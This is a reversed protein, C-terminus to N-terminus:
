LIYLLWLLYTNLMYFQFHMRTTTSCTNWNSDSPLAAYLAMHPHRQWLNPWIARWNAQSCHWFDMRFRIIFQEWFRVPESCVTTFMTGFDVANKMIKWSASQAEGGGIEGSPQACCYNWKSPPLQHNRDGKANQSHVDDRQLPYEITDQPVTNGNAEEETFNGAVPAAFPFVCIVVLM